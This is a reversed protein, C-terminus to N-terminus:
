AALPRPQRFHRDVEFPILAGKQVPSPRAEGGGMRLIGYDEPRGPMPAMGYAGHMWHEEGVDFRVESGSGPALHHRSEAGRSERDRLNLVEEGEFWVAGIM